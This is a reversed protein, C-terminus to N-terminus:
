AGPDTHHYVGMTSEPDPAVPYYNLRLLSSNHTETAGNNELANNGTSSKYFQEFFDFKEGLTVAFLMLLRRGIFELHDSYARMNARFDPLIEEDLWQNQDVGMRRYVSEDPPTDEQRGAFDFVEKWDLKNKTLEGDFYGRSNDASRRITNKIEKSLKFFARMSRQFTAFQEPTVGHNTIYFFGWDVAASRLATITDHFPGAPDQLTAEIEADTKCKMLAGIDVVPVSLPALTELGM